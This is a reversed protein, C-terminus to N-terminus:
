RRIEQIKPMKLLFGEECRVVIAESLDYWGWYTMTYSTPMDALSYLDKVTVKRYDDLYSFLAELVEEAEERTNFVIEPQRSRRSIYSSERDRDDYKGSYDIRRLGDGDRSRRGGPRLRDQFLIFHVLDELAHKVGPILWEDVLRTQVEEKTVSLFSEIFRQGISKKKEKGSAIPGREKNSSPANDNRTAISQKQVNYSNGPYQEDRDKSDM